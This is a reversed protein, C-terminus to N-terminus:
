DHDPLRAQKESSQREEIANVLARHVPKETLLRERKITKHLRIEVWSPRAKTAETPCGPACAAILAGM